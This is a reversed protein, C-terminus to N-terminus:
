ERQRPRNTTPPSRQWGCGRSVGAMSPERSRWASRVLGALVYALVLAPASELTLAMFTEVFGLAAHGHGHQQTLVFGVVVSAGVLAGSASWRICKLLGIDTPDGHTESPHAHDGHHHLHGDEHHPMHHGHEGSASHHAHDHHVCTDPTYGVAEFQAAQRRAIRLSVGKGIIISWSWFSAIILIMMVIKVTLTARAFLAWMSFDVAQTLALTETEM